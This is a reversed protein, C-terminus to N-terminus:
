AKTLQSQIWHRKRITRWNKENLLMETEEDKKDKKGMKVKKLVGVHNISLVQM